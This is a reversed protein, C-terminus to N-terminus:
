LDQFSALDWPEATEALSKLDAQLSQALCSSEKHIQGKAIYSCHHAAVLTGRGSQVPLCHEWDPLLPKHKVQM